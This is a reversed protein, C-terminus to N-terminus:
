LRHCKVTKCTCDQQRAQIFNFINFTYLLLSAEQIRRLQWLICAGKEWKTM